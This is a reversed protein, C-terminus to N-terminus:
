REKPWPMAVQRLMKLDAKAYIFTTNLCRHGLVDAIAKMPSDQALARIAWSHRLTSSGSKPKKVGAKQMYKRVTSSIDMTDLPFHPARVSLFVERLRTEPRHHLYNIIAEGVAELLPLM